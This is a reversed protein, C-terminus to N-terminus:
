YPRKFGAKKLMESPKRKIEPLKETLSRKEFRFEGSKIFYVYAADEGERYVV